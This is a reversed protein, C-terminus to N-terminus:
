ASKQPDDAGDRIWGNRWAGARRACNASRSIESWDGNARGSFGVPVSCNLIEKSM